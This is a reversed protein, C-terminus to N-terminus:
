TVGYGALKARNLASVQEAFVRPTTQSQFNASRIVVNTSFDTNGGVYTTSPLLGSRQILGTGPLTLTGSFGIGALTSNVADRIEAAAQQTMRKSSLIGAALSVGVAKGTKEQNSLDDLTEQVPAVADQTTEQLGQSSETIGSGIAEMADSGLADVGNDAFLMLRMYDALVGTASSADISDLSFGNELLSAMVGNIADMGEQADQELWSAHAERIGENLARYTNGLDFGSMQSPDAAYKRVQEPDNWWNLGYKEGYSAYTTLLEPTMNDRLWNEAFNMSDAQMAAQMSSLLRIQEGGTQIYQWAEPNQKAMGELIAAVDAQFQANVKNEATNLETQREALAADYATLEEDSAGAERAEAQREDSIAIEAKRQAEIEAMKQQYVGIAYAAASAVAEESGHGSAVLDFYSKYTSAELSETEAELGMMQNRLAMVRDLAAQLANLEEDTASNGKRYVTQLLANYDAVANQLQTAVERVGVDDSTAGDNAEAMIRVGVKVSLDAYESADIKGDAVASDFAEQVQKGIDTWVNSTLKIGNKYELNIQDLNKQIAEQMSVADPAEFDLEFADARNRFEEAEAGAARIALTLGGGILAVGAAAWGFPGTMVSALVKGATIMKGIGTLTPGLAAAMLGLNVITQQTGADLQGVYDAVGGIANTVADVAPYLNQALEVGTNKLRNMAGELQASRSSVRTEFAADLTGSASTMEALISHYKDAATTGLMMVANLGEVSGFLKGLKESDGETVSAIEALFGTFGKAKLGAASFDIGLEKAMEAAESTPKIVASLVGRLGTIASSTSLGGATLAAVSSLVEEMSLSLQPALGSVQGIQSSLEGVTTKGLNQATIMNDLIHDLGGSAKAGWANYISSAGNIVTSADSRGAKGAMAAREAWYAADEPAVGASIADYTASALETAATHADNSADILEDTLDRIQQQRQEQTGSLVGPLTAVEYVADELEMGYKVSATGMGVIPLTLVKTLAKGAQTAGKALKDLAEGYHKANEAASRQQNGAESTSEALNAQASAADDAAQGTEETADGLAQQQEQAKQMAANCKQIEATLKAEDTQSKLIKLDLQELKSADAGPTQAYADRAQQLTATKKRQEELQKTLLESQKGFYDSNKSNAYTAELLKMEAANRRMAKNATDLQSAFQEAGEVRLTIGSVRISM